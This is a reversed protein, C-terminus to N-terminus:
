QISLALRVQITDKLIEASYKGKSLLNHKRDIGLEILTSENIIFNEDQMFYLDESMPSKIFEKGFHTKQQEISLQNKEFELVITNQSQGNIKVRTSTLNGLSSTTISCLGSGGRCDRGRIDAQLIKDETQALSLISLLLTILTM